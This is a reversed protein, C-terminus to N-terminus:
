RSDTVGVRDCFELLPCTSCHPRVRTCVQKGFPVLLRNIELRYTSPLIAELEIQTQEPTKASILGWRNTVRHVHIDVPVRDFGCAIGLALAACKPGIGPIGIVFREDCPLEGGQDRIAITAINIITAAKSEAFSSRGIIRLVGGEGLELMAAPDPAVEFLQQSVPLSVEEYTRISIVCAVLQQFLTAFGRDALAFMAAPPYPEVAVRLRSMVEDIEDPKM